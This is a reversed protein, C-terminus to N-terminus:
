RIYRSYRARISTTYICLADIQYSATHVMSSELVQNAAALAQIIEHLALWPMLEKEPGYESELLVYIQSGRSSAQSLRSLRAFQITQMVRIVDAPAFAVLTDVLGLVPERYSLWKTWLSEILARYQQANDKEQFFDIEKDPFFVQLIDKENVDDDRNFTSFTQAMRIRGVRSRITPLLKSWHQTTLLFYLNPKPEELVKLLANAAQTNLKDAEQIIIVQNKTDQTQHAKEILSRITDIKISKGEPKISILSQHSGAQFWICSKCRGCPEAVKSQDCLLRAAIADTFARITGLNSSEVVISQAWTGTQVADLANLIIKEQSTASFSM